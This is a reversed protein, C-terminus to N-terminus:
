RSGHVDKRSLLEQQSGLVAQEVSKTHNVLSSLTIREEQLKEENSKLRTALQMILDNSARIVSEQQQRAYREERLIDDNKRTSTKIDTQLRVIEELLARNSKETVNLRMELQRMRDDYDVFDTIAPM